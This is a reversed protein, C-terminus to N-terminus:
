LIPFDLTAKTEYVASDQLINNGNGRKEDTLEAERQTNVENEEIAFPGEGCQQPLPQGGTSREWHRYVVGIYIRIPRIQTRNGASTVMGSPYVVRFEVAQTLHNWYCPLPPAFSVPYSCFWTSNSSTWLPFLTYNGSSSPHNCLSPLCFTFLYVAKTQQIEGKSKEPCTCKIKGM